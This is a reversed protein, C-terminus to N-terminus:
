FSAMDRCDQTSLEFDSPLLNDLDLSAAMPWTKRRSADKGSSAVTSATSISPASASSLRSKVPPLRPPPMLQRPAESRLPSRETLSNAPIKRAPPPVARTASPIIPAAMSKRSSISRTRAEDTSGIGLEHLDEVSFSVDQTSLIMSLDDEIPTPAMDAADDAADPSEDQDLERAIQSNTVFLNDWFDDTDHVAQPAETATVSSSALGAYTSCAPQIVSSEDMARLEVDPTDDDCAPEESQEISMPIPPGPSSPASDQQQPEPTAAKRFFGALCTQSAAVHPKPPPINLRLREERQRRDRDERKRKNVLRREEKDKIKQARDILEVERNARRQEQTSIRPGYKKFDAKAQKSTMARVKTPRTHM